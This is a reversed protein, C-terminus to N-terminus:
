VQDLQTLLDDLVFNLNNNLKDVADLVQAHTHDITAQDTPGLALRALYHTIIANIADTQTLAWSAPKGQQDNYLTIMLTGVSYQLALQSRSGDPQIITLILQQRSAVAALASSVLLRITAYPLEQGSRIEGMATWIAEITIQIFKKNGLWQPHRVTEALVTDVIDLIQTANLSPSWRGRKPPVTIALLVQELITALLLRPSGASVQLLQSSHAASYRLMLRILEPLLETFPLKAASLAGATQALISRFVEQQSILEPHAAVVELLSDVLDQAMAADFPRSYDIGNNEFLILDLLLLAREDPYAILLTDLIYDALEALRQTRQQPPVGAGQYVFGVLLALARELIAREQTDSGWHIKRLVARSTIAAQLALLILGELAQPPLKEGPRMKKLAGFVASLVDQLLLQGAENPTLWEPHLIIEEVLREIIGMAEAPSLQPQWVEDPNEKNSLALLLEQVFVVLLFRSEHTDAKLVLQANLATNELVLRVLEPLIDAKKFSSADLARAVGAIVQALGEKSSILEPHAGLTDLSADLLANALQRNFGGTFDVGPSDFLIIQVLLLGREDPHKSIIVEMIYDLLDTLLQIREAPSVPNRQFVYTFALSLVQQLIAEEHADDTWHIRRLVQPSAAVVRLNLQLLWQFTDASLRQDSAVTSLADLTIRVMESLIPREQIETEILAPNLVVENLLQEVIFLLQTKSLHPEWGNPSPRSLETLILEMALLYLQEPGPLPGEGPKQWFLRLHRGTNELILRMLEPVYDPRNFSSNKLTQCVGSVIQRFGNDGQILQPHEAIVGFASQMVRDLTENNFAKGLDIKHPDQLIEDLLVLGTSQILKSAGENTDFWDAPSSLVYQASSSVASRLILRGWQVAEDHQNPPLKALRNALEAGVDKGVAAVFSQIKPDGSIQPSLEALSEAAAIFLSPLITPAHQQMAEQDSFPIQDLAGLFHKMARGSASQTNLAGPVQSFYDIGIEVLTGALIQLPSTGPRGGKRYQRISLLTAVDDANIRDDSLTASRDAQQSVFLKRYYDLYEEKEEANLMDNAGFGISRKHLEQLRAILPLFRAGGTIEDPDSFYTDAVIPSIERDFAPLPLVLKTSTLSKAYARQANRGLRIAANIAFIIAEATAVPPM